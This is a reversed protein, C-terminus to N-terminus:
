HIITNLKPSLTPQSLPPLQNYSLNSIKIYKSLYNKHDNALLQEFPLRAIAITNSPTIAEVQASRKQHRILGMEGVVMLPNLMAIVTGDSGIVSMTGSILIHMDESIAGCACVIEGPEYFRTQCINLVAQTQSPSLGKLVPIKKFIQRVLKRQKPKM